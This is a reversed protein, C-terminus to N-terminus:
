SRTPKDPPRGGRYGELMFGGGLSVLATMGGPRVVVRAGYM